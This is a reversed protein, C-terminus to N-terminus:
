TLDIIDEDVSACKLSPQKRAPQTYNTYDKLSGKLYGSHINGKARARALELPPVKTVESNDDESDSSIDILRMLHAPTQSKKRPSGHMTFPLLPSPSCPRNCHTDENIVHTKIRTSRPSTHESTKRPSKKLHFDVFDSESSSHSVKKRTQGRAVPACQLPPAVDDFPDDEFLHGDDCSSIRSSALVLEKSRSSCDEIDSGSIELYGSGPANRSVATSLTSGDRVYPKAPRTLSSQSPAIKNRKFVGDGNSVSSGRGNPAHISPNSKHGMANLSKTSAFFTKLNGSTGELVGKAAGKTLDRVIPGVQAENCTSSKLDHHLDVIANFERPEPNGKGTLRTTAQDYNTISGVSAAKSKGSPKVRGKTSTKEHKRRQVAEFEEVLRPEVLAVMCAPMWVRMHSEPDPPLKKGVDGEDDDAWEDPGEPQRIGKIGSEAIRVLQAPAIELRYELIGDTSVHNRSSHVKIILREDEDDECDSIYSKLEGLTCSSFHKAIM